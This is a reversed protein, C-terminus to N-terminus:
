SARLGMVPNKELFQLMAQGVQNEPLQKRDHIIM